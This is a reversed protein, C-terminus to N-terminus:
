GYLQRATMQQFVPSMGIGGGRPAGPPPPAGPGALTSGLSAALAAMQMKEDFGMKKGQKGAEAAYDVGAAADATGKAMAADMSQGVSPGADAVPKYSAKSGTQLYSGANQGANAKEVQQQMKSEPPKYEQGYGALANPGGGIAQLLSQTAEPSTWTSNKKQQSPDVTPTINIGGGPAQPADPSKGGALATVGQIIAAITVPDM